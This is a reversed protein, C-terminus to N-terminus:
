AGVPAQQMEVAHEVTVCTLQVPVQITPTVQAVDGQVAPAQQVPPNQETVECAEQEPDHSWPPDQLPEVQTGGLLVGVHAPPDLSGLQHWPLWVVPHPPVLPDTFAWFAPL